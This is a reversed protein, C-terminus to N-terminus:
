RDQQSTPLVIWLLKDLVLEPHEGTLNMAEALLRDVQDPDKQLLAELKALDGLTYLQQLIQQAKPDSLLQALDTHAFHRKM